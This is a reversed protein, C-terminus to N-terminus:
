HAVCTSCGSSDKKIATLNEFKWLNYYKQNIYDCAADVNTFSTQSFEKNDDQIVTVYYELEDSQNEPKMGFSIIAKYNQNSYCCYSLNNSDIM